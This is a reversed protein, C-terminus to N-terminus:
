INVFCDLSLVVVFFVISMNRMYFEDMLHQVCQILNLLVVVFKIQINTVSHCKALLETWEVERSILGNQWIWPSYHVIQQRYYCQSFSVPEQPFSRAPDATANHTEWGHLLAPPAGSYNFRKNILRRASRRGRSRSGCARPPGSGRVSM